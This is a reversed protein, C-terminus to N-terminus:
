AFAPGFLIIPRIRNGNPDHDRTFELVIQNPDRNNDAFTTALALRSEAFAILPILLLLLLSSLSRKM